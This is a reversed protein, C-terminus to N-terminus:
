RVYGASMDFAFQTEAYSALGSVPAASRYHPTAALPAAALAAAAQPAADPM